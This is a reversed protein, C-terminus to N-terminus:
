KLDRCNFNTLSGWYPHNLSRWYRNTL